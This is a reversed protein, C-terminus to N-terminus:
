LKSGPAFNYQKSAGVSGFNNFWKNGSPTINVKKRHLQMDKVQQKLFPNNAVKMRDMGARLYKGAGVGINALGKAAEYGTYAAGALGLGATVFAEKKIAPYKYDLSAYKELVDEVERKFGAQPALGPQPQAAPDQPQPQAAPDQPQGGMEQQQGQMQIQRVMNQQIVDQLQNAGGGMQEDMPQQGAQALQTKLRSINDKEMILREYLQDKNVSAGAGKAGGGGAGKMDAGLTGMPDGPQMAMQNPDQPPMAQAQPPQAQPPPTFAVKELSELLFDCDDISYM